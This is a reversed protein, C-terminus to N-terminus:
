VDNLPSFSSSLWEKQNFLNCHINIFIHELFLYVFKYAHFTHIIELNHGIGMLIMNNDNSQKEWGKHM